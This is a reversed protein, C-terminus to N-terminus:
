RGIVGNVHEFWFERMVEELQRDSYVALLLKAESLEGGVVAQPQVIGQSIDRQEPQIGDVLQLAKEGKYTRALDLREDVPMKLIAKYRAEPPMQLLLSGDIDAYMADERRKQQQQRQEPTMAPDNPSVRTLAPADKSGAATPPEAAAQDLNNLNAGAAAKEEKKQQRQEYEAM